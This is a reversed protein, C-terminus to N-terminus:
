LGADKIAGRIRKQIRQAHKPREAELARRLPARVPNHVSGAENFVFHGAANGVAASQPNSPAVKPAVKARPNLSKVRSAAADYGSEGGMPAEVYYGEAESGTDRYEASNASARAAVAKATDANGEAIAQPLGDEIKKLSSILASIGRIEFTIFDTM